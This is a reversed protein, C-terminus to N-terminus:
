TETDRGNLFTLRRLVQNKIMSTRSFKYGRIKRGVLIEGYLVKAVALLIRNLSMLSLKVPGDARPRKM